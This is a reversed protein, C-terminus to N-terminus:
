TEVPTHNQLATMLEDYVYQAVREMEVEDLRGIVEVEVPFYYNIVQGQQVSEETSGTGEPSRYTPNGLNGGTQFGPVIITASGENPPM